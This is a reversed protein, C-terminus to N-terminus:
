EKAIEHNADISLIKKSIEKAEEDSVVCDPVTNLFLLNELYKVERCNSLEVAKRAHYLASTYAGEVHCLPQSLLIYALDHLREHNEQSLLYIVFTYNSLNENNFSIELLNEYAVSFDTSNFLEEAELYKGSLIYSELQDKM